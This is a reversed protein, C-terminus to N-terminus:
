RLSPTEDRASATSAIAAIFMGTYDSIIMSSSQSTEGGDASGVAPLNM